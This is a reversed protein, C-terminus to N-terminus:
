KARREHPIYTVCASANGEVANGKISQADIVTGRSSVRAALTEPREVSVHQGAGANAMNDTHLSWPGHPCVVVMLGGPRLYSEAKDLMVEPYVTHELSDLVAVVDASCEAGAGDLAFFANTLKREEILGKNVTIQEPSVDIGGWMVDPDLQAFQIVNAGCGTAYEIAVKARSLAVVRYWYKAREPLLEPRDFMEKYDIVQRINQAFGAIEKDPTEVQDALKLCHEVCERVRPDDAVEHPMAFALLHAAERWQEFHVLHKYLYEVSQAAFEHEAALLMRRTAASADPPCKTHDPPSKQYIYRLREVVKQFNM